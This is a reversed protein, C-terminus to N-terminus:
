EEKKLDNIDTKVDKIKTILEKIVIWFSRNGLKQNTEDISKIEIYIFLFCVFKCILLDIGWIPGGVLHTDVLFSLIVGGLYFFTKPCFNWLKASRFESWGGLKVVVYIAFITDIVVFLGTTLLMGHIPTLFTFIIGFFILINEKLQNIIHLFRQM